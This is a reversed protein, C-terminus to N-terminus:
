ACLAAIGAHELSQRSTVSNIAAFAILGDDSKGLNPGVADLPRRFNM